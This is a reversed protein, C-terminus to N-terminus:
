LRIKLSNARPRINRTTAIHMYIHGRGMCNKGLGRMGGEGGRGQGRTLLGKTLPLLLVLPPVFFPDTRRDADSSLNKTEQILSKKFTNRM